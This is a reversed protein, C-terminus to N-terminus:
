IKLIEEGKNNVLIRNGKGDEKWFLSTKDKVDQKLMWMIYFQVFQVAICIIAIVM